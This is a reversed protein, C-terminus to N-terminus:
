WTAWFSLLVVEGRYQSLRVIDGELSMLNFDQSPEPRVLQHINMLAMLEATNTSTQINSGPIDSSARTSEMLGAFIFVLLIIFILISM